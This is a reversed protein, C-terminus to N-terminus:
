ERRFLVRKSYKSYPAGPGGAANTWETYLLKLLFLHFAILVLVLVVWFLTPLGGGVGGGPGGHKHLDVTHQEHAPADVIEIVHLTKKVLELQDAHESIFIIPTRPRTVKIALSIQKQGLPFPAEQCGATCAYLTPTSSTSRLSVFPKLSLDLQFDMSLRAGSEGVLLGDVQIHRHLESEPDLGIELRTGVGAGTGKQQKGGPQVQQIHGVSTSSSSTFTAASLSLLFAQLVGHAGTPGRMLRSCGRHELTMRWIDLTKLASRLDDWRQWLKSPTLLTSHGAYCQASHRVVLAWRQVIEKKQNTTVTTTGVNELLPARVTSLLAHRVGDIQAQNLANPAKSQSIHFTASNLEKWALAHEQDLQDSSLAYLRGFTSSLRKVLEHRTAVSSAAATAAAAAGGGRAGDFDTATTDVACIFRFSDEVKPKIVVSKSPIASCQVGLLVNKGGNFLKTFVASPTSKHEDWDSRRRAFTMSFSSASPNIIHVDQVLLEPRTRHAYVTQSICVCKEAVNSCYVSRAVGDVPDAFVVSDQQSTLPMQVDVLPHFGTHLHSRGSENALLVLRRDSAMDIGLFGNGVFAVRNERWHGSDEDDGGSALPHTIGKVTQSICVCKEAVNSCYVSRAVGDVPDAFVVSDQQSTLPMQVDVLPHFGTHLHSRGSENALLVLRRDSAMDIGLFGNGVFPSMTKWGRWHGSDEDDGGSALPHTIGKRILYDAVCHETAPQRSYINLSSWGFLTYIFLVFLACGFLAFRRSVQRPLLHRSLDLM